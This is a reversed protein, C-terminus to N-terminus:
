EATRKQEEKMVKMMYDFRAIELETKQRKIYSIAVIGVVALLWMKKTM